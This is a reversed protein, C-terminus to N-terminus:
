PMARGAAAFDASLAAFAARDFPRFTTDGRGRWWVRNARDPHYHAAKLDRVRIKHTATWPFDDVVRVFDPFWKRDCGAAVQHECHDFFAQPDFSGGSMRLAVMVHEDSVPHPVGYAAALDVGPFSQVMSVVSDAGFNEGDKRIWDDTRGAFYLLRRGGAKRYYALDGSHYLGGELKKQTAEPQGHYGQFLGITGERVLEGVTGEPVERGADDVIKVRPDLIAGLSDDPDGPMCVTSIEAETSGYLEYVHDLGLWKKIKRREAPSAGTGVILRLRNRPDDAVEARIRAEDGGHARAIADLVYHVPQGVYNWFTAGYRLVDPLFASASFKDRLAISAGATMAPLWDLFLANSHFLPMSVYGVDEARLGVMGSTAFGIGRLKGHTNVIGKPVGTTGSTYIVVWPTMPGPAADGLDPPADPFSATARAADEAAVVREAAIGAALVAERTSDDVLVMAAGAAEIVRALVEGGLGVNIGFIQAGALATGGYADLFELNNRMMVALRAVDRSRLWHAWRASRRAFESYTVTRDDMRAMVKSATAPDGARAAILEGFTM